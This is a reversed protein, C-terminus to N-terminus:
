LMKQKHLDILYILKKHLNPFVTQNRKPVVSKPSFLLSLLLLISLFLFNIQHKSRYFKTVNSKIIHFLCVFFSSIFYIPGSLYYRTKFKKTLALLIKTVKKWTEKHSKSKSKQNKSRTGKSNINPKKREKKGWTEQVIRDFHEIHSFFLYIFLGGCNVYNSIKCDSPWM